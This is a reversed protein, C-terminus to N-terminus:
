AVRARGSRRDARRPLRPRWGSVRLKGTDVLTYAISCQTFRFERRGSHTAPTVHVDPGLSRLYALPEAKEGRETATTGLARVEFGGDRAMEPATQATRAAGSAPDQPMQPLAM